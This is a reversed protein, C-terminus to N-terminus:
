LDWRLNKLNISMKSSQTSITECKISKQFKATSSAALIPHKPTPTMTMALRPMDLKPMESYSYRFITSVLKRLTMLNMSV